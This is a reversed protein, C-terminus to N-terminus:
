QRIIKVNLFNHKNRLFVSFFALSSLRSKKKRKEILNKDQSVTFFM